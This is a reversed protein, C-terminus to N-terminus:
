LFYIISRVYNKYFSISFMLFILIMKKFLEDRCVVCVAVAWVPCVSLWSRSYIDYERGNFDGMKKLAHYRNRGSRHGIIWKKEGKVM